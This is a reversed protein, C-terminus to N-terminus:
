GSLPKLARGSSRGLLSLSGIGPMAVESAGYRDAHANAEPSIRHTFLIARPRAHDRIRDIEAATLRANVPVAWADLRSAAFLATVAAISNENIILIRDGGRVGNEILDPGSRALGRATRAYTLTPGDPEAVAIADPTASPGDISM